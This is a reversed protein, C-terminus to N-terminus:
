YLPGGCSLIFEMFKLGRSKMKHVNQQTNLMKLSHLFDRITLLEMMKMVLKVLTWWQDRDLGLGTWAKM